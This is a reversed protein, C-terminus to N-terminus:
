YQSAVKQSQIVTQVLKSLQYASVFYKEIQKHRCGRCSDPRLFPASARVQTHLQQMHFYLLNFYTIHFASLHMFISYLM